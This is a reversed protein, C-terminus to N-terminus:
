EGDQPYKKSQLNLIPQMTELISQQRERGPNKISQQKKPQGDPTVSEERKRKENTAKPKIILKDYKIYATNGKEREEQLRPQLLKRKELTEKPLDDKISIGEPLHKKNTFLLQKKWNTTLQLLVPRTKDTKKGLRFATVIEQCDLNVGTEIIVDKLEQVLDCQGREKEKLGFFIVNRSRNKQELYKVKGEMEEIRTKLASNEERLHNMKEDIAELVSQKVNSTIKETQLNLKEDLKALLINMDM